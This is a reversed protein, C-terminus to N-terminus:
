GGKDIQIRAIQFIRRPSENNTMLNSGANILEAEINIRPNNVSLSPPPLLATIMEVTVNISVGM